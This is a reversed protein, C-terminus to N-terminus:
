DTAFRYIRQFQLCAPLEDGALKEESGPAETAALLQKLTALGGQTDGLQRGLRM